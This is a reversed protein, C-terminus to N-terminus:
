NVGGLNLFIVAQKVPVLQINELLNWRSKTNVFNTLDRELEESYGKM